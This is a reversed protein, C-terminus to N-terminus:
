KPGLCIRVSGSIKDSYSTKDMTQGGHMPRSCGDQAISLIEGVAKRM